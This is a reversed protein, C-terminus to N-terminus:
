KNALARKVLLHQSAQPQPSLPTAKVTFDAFMTRSVHANQRRTLSSTKTVNKVLGFRSGHDWVQFDVHRFWRVERLRQLFNLM